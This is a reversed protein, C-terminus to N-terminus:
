FVLGFRHSSRTATTAARLSDLSKKGRGATVTATPYFSVWFNNRSDHGVEIKALEITTRNVHWGRVMLDRIGSVFQYGTVQHKGM